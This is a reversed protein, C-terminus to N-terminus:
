EGRKPLKIDIVLGDDNYARIKGAHGEVIRKVISLGLGSSKGPDTRSSDARYFVEFIKDIKSEEVGPGNDRIELCIYEKELYTRFRISLNEKVYKCSNEVINFLVRNFQAKDLNVRIDRNLIGVYKIEVDRSKYEQRMKGVEQVTYDIFNIEEFNFKLSGSELRSYLYLIEILKELEETKSYITGIYRNRKEETNAIGDILGKSYGKISTLPTRLDHSIGAILQQRDEEFAKQQDISARLTDKMVNFDDIVEKFENKESYQITYEYDDKKIRETGYKLRYLPDLIYRSLYGTLIMNYIFFVIIIIIVYLLVYTISTKIILDMDMYIFPSKEGIVILTMQLEDMIFSKKIITKNDMQLINSDDYSKTYYDIEELFLKNEPSINTDTVEGNSLLEIEYGRNRLENDLESFVLRRNEETQAYELRNLSDEIYNEVEDISDKMNKIRDFSIGTVNKYSISLIFLVIIMTLAVMFMTIINSITLKNRLKM